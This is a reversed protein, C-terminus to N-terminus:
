GAVIVQSGLRKITGYHDSVRLPKATWSIGQVNGIVENGVKKLEESHIELLKVVSYSTARRDATVAAPNFRRIVTFTYADYKGSKDKSSATASPPTPRVTWQGSFMDYIEDIHKVELVSGPEGSALSEKKEEKAEDDSKPDYEMIEGAPAPMTVLPGPANRFAGRFSPPSGFLHPLPPHHDMGVIPVILM